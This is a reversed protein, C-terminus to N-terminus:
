KKKLMKFFLEKGQRKPHSNVCRSLIQIDFYNEFYKRYLNINGGFPPGEDTLPFDFFLGVLKGESKLLEHSKKVYNPRRKPSLACFFTQEIILDFTDDIEFFDIHLLQDQPFEPLRHKLNNLPTQVIDAVFVNKFNNQYFYEAEYANGAGPILIKLKKNHLQDIYEKLPPSVHKMDWGTDDKLYRDEWYNQNDIM